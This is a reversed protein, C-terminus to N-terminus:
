GNLDNGCKSCFKSNSKNEFGCKSCINVELNKGCRICFKSGIPVRKGCEPCRKNIIKFFDYGCNHCKTSGKKLVTNCKPCKDPIGLMEEIEKIEFSDESEVVEYNPAEIITNNEILPTSKFEGIINELQSKILEGAVEKILILLEDNNKRILDNIQSISLVQQAM